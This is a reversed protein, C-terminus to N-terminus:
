LSRCVMEAEEYREQRYLLAGYNRFPQSYNPVTDIAIRHAEEALHTKGYQELTHGLNSFMMGNSPNIKLASTYLNYASTWDKNRNVTKTSHFLILVSLGLYVACNNIFSKDRLKMKWAGYAVLLCFGMSPLFLVREAVVFGVLFLFNSAPLFTLVVVSFAFATRRPGSRRNLVCWLGLSLLCIFTLVTLLHRPDALSDVLPVVGFRWDHILKSPNILLWTNAFILHLYYLQRYPSEM